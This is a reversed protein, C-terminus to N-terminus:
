PREGTDNFERDVWAPREVTTADVGTYVFSRTINTRVSDSRRAYSINLSRIFGDPEVVARLTVNEMTDVAPHVPYQGTLEYAADGNVRTEAVRVEDLRLFARSLQVTQSRPPNVSEISGYEVTSGYDTRIYLREGDAFQTASGWPEALTDRQLYRRPTEVRLVRRSRESGTRVDVTLTYSRGQIAAAHADLLTDTDTVSAGSVGPPLTAPTDTVEPVPVPTLTEGPTETGTAVSGCGALVLALVVWVARWDM